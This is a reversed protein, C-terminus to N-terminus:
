PASAYRIVAGGWYSVVGGQEQRQEAIIADGGLQCVNQQIAPKFEALTLGRSTAVVQQPSVRGVEDFPRGPRMDLIAFSCDTPKATTPSGTPTATLTIPVTACGTLVIAVCLLGVSKM